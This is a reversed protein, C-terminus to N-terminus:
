RSSWGRRLNHKQDNKNSHFDEILAPLFPFANPAIADILFRLSSLFNGLALFPPDSIKIPSPPLNKGLTGCIIHFNFSGLLLNFPNVHLGFGLLCLVFGPFKVVGVLSRILAYTRFQGVLITFALPCWELIRSLVCVGEGRWGM